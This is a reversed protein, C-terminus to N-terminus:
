SIAHGVMAAAVLAGSVKYSGGQVAATLQQIRAARDINLRNLASSAGSIQISDQTGSVGSGVRRSESGAGTASTQATEGTGNLGLGSAASDM